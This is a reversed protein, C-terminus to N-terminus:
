RCTHRDWMITLSIGDDRVLFQASVNTDIHSATWASLPIEFRGFLSLKLMKETFRYLTFCCMVVLSLM